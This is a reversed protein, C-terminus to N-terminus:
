MWRQIHPLHAVVKLSAITTPRRVGLAAWLRFRTFLNKRQLDTGAQKAGPSAVVEQVVVRNIKASTMKDGGTRREEVARRAAELADRRKARDDQGTHFQTLHGMGLNKYVLFDNRRPRISTRFTKYLPSDGAPNCEESEPLAWIWRQIQM